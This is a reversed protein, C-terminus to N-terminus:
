KLIARSALRGTEVDFIRGGGGKPGHGERLKLKTRTDKTTKKNNRNNCDNPGDPSTVM